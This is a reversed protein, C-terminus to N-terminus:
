KSKDIKNTQLSHMFPYRTNIKMGYIVKVLDDTEKKPGYITRTALRTFIVILSKKNIQKCM